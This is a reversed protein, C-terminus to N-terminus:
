QTPQDPSGSRGATGEKSGGDATTSATAVPDLKAALTTIKGAFDRLDGHRYKSDRARSIVKDRLSKRGKGELNMQTALCDFAIVAPPIHDPNSETWAAQIKAELDDPVTLPM